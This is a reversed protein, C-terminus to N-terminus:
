KAMHRNVADTAPYSLVMIKYMCHPHYHPEQLHHVGTYQSIATCGFTLIREPLRDFPANDQGFEKLWYIHSNRSLHQNPVM